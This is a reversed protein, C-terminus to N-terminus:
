RSVFLAMGWPLKSVSERRLPKSNKPSKKSFSLMVYVMIWYFLGLFELGSLLSLMEFNHHPIAKNM